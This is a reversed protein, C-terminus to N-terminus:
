AAMRWKWENCKKVKLWHSNRARAYGAEADKLVLGEGGSAWVREAMRRVDAADFAWEDPMVIVPNDGEGRGKSGARWTWGDGTAAAALDALRKKRAYLPVDSGGARWEALTLCDFLYHLGKEGGRKWDREVWEKTASLAGDVVLEGDFFMPEGAAQEMLGLRYAIHDCGEIPAGNRSWLRARGELDQAYFCRFGDWKREVMAGGAPLNGRWDGALQVLSAATM